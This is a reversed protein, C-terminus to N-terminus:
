STKAPGGGATANASKAALTGVAYIKRVRTVSEWIGTFGGPIVFTEGAGFERVQGREDTLRVRGELLTCLEEEGTAYEVRWAGPESQWIGAHFQGSPDSYHNWTRLRPDGSVIRERLPRSDEPVPSDDGFGIIRASM